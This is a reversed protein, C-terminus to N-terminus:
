RKQSKVDGGWGSCKSVIDSCLQNMAHPSRKDTAIGETSSTLVDRWEWGQVLVAFDTEPSHFGKDTTLRIWDENIPVVTLAGDEVRTSVSHRSLSEAISM